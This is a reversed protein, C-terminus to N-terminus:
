ETTERLSQSSIILQSIQITYRDATFHQAETLSESVTISIQKDATATRLLYSNEVTLSHWHSNTQNIWSSRSWKATQIQHHHQQHNIRWGKQTSWFETTQTNETVDEQCWNLWKLPSFSSNIHNILSILGRRSCKTTINHKSVLELNIM